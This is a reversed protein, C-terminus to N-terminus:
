AQLRWAHTFLEFGDERAVAILTIGLAEATRIALATPASIAAICGVGMRATKQVMEVSVRSSLVVLGSAVGSDGWTAGALKDLANHRGVDERVAVFAGDTWLGAAHVARTADGLPQHLRLDAIATSIDQTTFRRTASVRGIVPAAAELAEVGCLGCATGGVIARRRELAAFVKGPQLWIRAEVGNPQAVVDIGAIDRSDAVIAETLSFGRALDDLASPSAMLVAYTTGDYVIAVATEEPTERRVSSRGADSM